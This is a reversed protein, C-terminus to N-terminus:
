PKESELLLQDKARWQSDTIIESTLFSLAGPLKTNLQLLGAKVLIATGNIPNGDKALVETGMGDSDSPTEYSLMSENQRTIRDGPYPGAPFDSEPEIGEAVVQRVFGAMSPFLRASVKAVTFRGSTDAISKALVVAPGTILRDNSKFIDDASHQEPTVILISGSSGYLGVCHWGRPGLVGLDASEYDALYRAAWPSIELRPKRDEPGPRFGVQGDSDCSVTPVPGTISFMPQATVYHQHKDETYESTFHVPEESRQAIDGEITGDCELHRSFLGGRRTRINAITIDSPFKFQDVLRKTALGITARDACGPPVLQHRYVLLAVGICIVAAGIPIVRGM